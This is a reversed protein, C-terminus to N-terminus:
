EVVFDPDVFLDDLVVELVVESTLLDGIINTRHNEKIPVNPVYIQVDGHTTHLMMDVAVNDTDGNVILYNMGLWYYTEGNAHLLQELADDDGNPTASKQFHVTKRGEGKGTLTNFAEAVGSVTVESYNVKLPTMFNLSSVDYTSTGLNLQAFPRYLIVPYHLPGTVHLEKHAYFAARGEDNALEDDYSVIGVRRLDTVDYHEAGAPQEDQAWFIFNYTQDLILSLDLTFKGDGDPDRVVGSALPSSATEVDEDFIQWYLIDINSADAIAKTVGETQVTFTVPVSEADFISDQIMQCSDIAVAGFILVAAKLFKTIVKM